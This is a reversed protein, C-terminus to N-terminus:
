SRQVGYCMGKKKSKSSANAKNYSQLSPQASMWQPVDTTGIYYEEPFRVYVSVASLDDDKECDRFLYELLASRIRRRMARVFLAMNERGLPESHASTQLIDDITDDCAGLEIKIKINKTQKDIKRWTSDLDFTGCRWDKMIHADVLISRKHEENFGDQHHGGAKSGDMNYYMVEKTGDEGWIWEGIMVFLVKQVYRLLDHTECDDYPRNPVLGNPAIVEIEFELMNM